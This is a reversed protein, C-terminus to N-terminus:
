PFCTDSKSLGGAANIKFVSIFGLPSGSNSPLPHQTICCLGPLLVYVACNAKENPQSFIAILVFFASEQLTQFYKEAWYFLLRKFDSFIESKSKFYVFSFKLIKYPNIFPVAYIDNSINQIRICNREFRSLVKIRVTYPSLGISSHVCIFYYYPRM